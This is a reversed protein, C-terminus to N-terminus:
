VEERFRLGVPFRPVKNKNTLGQYQVILMRGIALSPCVWYKTLADQSGKLKVEFQTGDKTKCVFIAKGALKGRGEEVGVIEFEADQFEKIKQLDVSRKNVYLGAANRVMAGEYGKTLSQEFFEILEDEDNVEKTEVCVLPKYRVILNLQGNRWRFSGKGAIDYVHYEVVEHGEKPTPNRIFSTLEEFKHKYDHNYLEGDLVIDKLHLDEIAKNIHPLGTIPKRTRSWLTCTGVNDVMAICRHGDFKPQAFAPYTIKDGQEDFRKALMPEVGGTIVAHVEGANAADLTMVYGKKLKKEWQSTAEAEAQQEPTTGNSKGQNKGEKVVDRTKQLKGNVQGWRTVIANGETFIEWEQQAGVSSVKFLKPLFM